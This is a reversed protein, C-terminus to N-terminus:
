YYFGPTYYRPITYGYVPAPVVVHHSRAVAVPIKALVQNRVGEDHVRQLHLSKAAAVEATDSVPHPLQSHGGHSGSPDSGSVPHEHHEISHPVEPHASRGSEVVTHHHPVEVPHNGVPHQAVAVPHEHHEVPHHGDPHASRGTEVVTHHHPVEVPHHGVPHQAVAVRHEHHEVPHHGDPHASRGSEVVTHHHPVEIPHHGVPHQVVAHSVEAHHEVHHDVPHSASRPSFELSEQPVKAKPLNTAAVHFGKNDAVYNVTQLKGAADRYSYYGQTIGDLTRTEQKSSLPESYGYSYQGLEDKAIYQRQTPTFVASGEATYAYPYYLALGHALSLSGLLLLPYKM